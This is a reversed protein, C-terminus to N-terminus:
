DPMELTLAPAVIQKDTRKSKKKSANFPQFTLTHDDCNQQSKVNLSSKLPTRLRSREFVNRHIELLMRRLSTSPGQLASDAEFVNLSGLGLSILNILLIM